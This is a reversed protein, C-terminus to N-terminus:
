PRAKRSCETLQTQFSLVVNQLVKAVPILNKYNKLILFRLTIDWQSVLIMEENQNQKYSKYLQRLGRHELYTVCTVTDTFSFISIFQFTRCFSSLLVIIYSLWLIIYSDIIVDLERIYLLAMSWLTKSSDIIHAITTRCHFVTQLYLSKSLGHCKQCFCLSVPTTSSGTIKSTSLVM